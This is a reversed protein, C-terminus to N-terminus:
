EAPIRAAVREQAIAALRRRQARLEPGDTGGAEGSAVFPEIPELFHLEARLGQAGAIRWMSVVLSVDDIYAPVDSRMGAEDVYRIAVPYV